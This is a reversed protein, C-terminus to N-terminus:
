DEHKRFKKVLVLAALEQELFGMAEQAQFVDIGEKTLIQRFQILADEAEDLKVVADRSSLIKRIDNAPVAKSDAECYALKLLAHKFLVRPRQGKVDSSIADWWEMGLVRDRKGHTRIHSESDLLFSTSSSAPSLGGAAQMVFRFIFCVWSACPPKSRLIEKSIDEYKVQNTGNRQM